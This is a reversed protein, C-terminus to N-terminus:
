PSLSRYLAESERFPEFATGPFLAEGKRAAVDNSIKDQDEKQVGWRGTMYSTIGIM